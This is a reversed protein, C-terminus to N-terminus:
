NIEAFLEEKNEELKVKLALVVSQNYNADQIDLNTGVSQQISLGAALQLNIAMRREPQRATPKIEPNFPIM